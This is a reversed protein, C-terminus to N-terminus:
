GLKAKNIKYSAALLSAMCQIFHPLCCLCFRNQILWDFLKKLMTLPLRWCEPICREKLWLCVERYFINKRQWYERLILLFDCDLIYNDAAICFWETICKESSNMNLWWFKFHVSLQWQFGLLHTYQLIPERHHGSDLWCAFSMNTVVAM